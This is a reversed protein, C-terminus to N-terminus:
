TTSYSSSRLAHELTEYTRCLKHYRVQLEIERARQDSLLASLEDLRQPVALTEQRRLAEFCGLAIRQSDIESHATLLQKDLAAARKKYGGLLVELKNELKAARKGDKVMLNKVLQLQQQPAQLREQASVVSLQCYRQLSPVYAWEAAVAASAAEMKAGSPPPGNSHTQSDIEAELMQQAQALMEESLWKLPKRKPPEPASKVPHACADAEIVTVIEQSLMHDAIVFMTEEEGAAAAAAASTAASGMLRNVILPRPLEPRQLLRSRLKFESQAAVIKECGERKAVNQADELLSSEGDTGEDEPPPSLEPMVLKYENSPVPLSALQAALAERRQQQLRLAISAPPGDLDPHSADLDDIALVNRSSNADALSSGGTQSSTSRLVSFRANTAGFGTSAGGADGAHVVGDGIAVPTALPNPTMAGGGAAVKPTISGFGSSLHLTSSPGGLLPTQAELMSVQAVAEDLVTNTSASLNRPTRMMAASASVPTEKYSSMLVLTAESGSDLTAAATGNSAKLVRELERDGVQPPPLMLKARKRITQLKQISDLAAVAEPLAEERRRKLKEADTKRAKEEAVERNPADLKSKLKAKFAADDDCAATSAAADEGSTDFFGAPARKQFPIETNYDVGRVQPLNSPM